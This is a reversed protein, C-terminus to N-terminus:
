NGFGVGFGLTILRYNTNYWYSTLMSLRVNKMSLVYELTGGIQSIWYQKDLFFTSKLGFYLSVTNNGFVLKPGLSISANIGRPVSVFRNMDYISTIYGFGTNFSVGFSDKFLITLDQRVQTDLCISTTRFRNPFDDSPAFSSHDFRSYAFESSVGATISIGAFLGFCLLFLFIISITKKM